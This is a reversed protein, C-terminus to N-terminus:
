ILFPSARFPWWSRCASYTVKNTVGGTKGELISTIQTVWWGRLNVLLLVFSPAVNIMFEMWVWLVLAFSTFAQHILIQACNFELFHWGAQNEAKKTNVEGKQMVWKYFLNTAEGTFGCEILFPNGITRYNDSKDEPTTLRRISGTTFQTKSTPMFPHDVSSHFMCRNWPRLTYQKYTSMSM